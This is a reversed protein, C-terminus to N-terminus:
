FNEGYMNTDHLSKMKDFKVAPRGDSCLCNEIDIDVIIDVNCMQCDQAATM